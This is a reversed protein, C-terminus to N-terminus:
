EENHIFDTLVSVYQVLVKKLQFFDQIRLSFKPENKVKSKKRITEETASDNWFLGKDKSKM